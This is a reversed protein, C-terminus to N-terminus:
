RQNLGAAIDVTNRKLPSGIGQEVVRAGKGMRRFTPIRKPIRFQAALDRNPVVEGGNVHCRLHQSVVLRIRM